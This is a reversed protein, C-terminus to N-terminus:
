QFAILVHNIYFICNSLYSLLQKKYSIYINYIDHIKNNYTHVINEWFLFVDYKHLMNEFFQQCIAQGPGFVCADVLDCM